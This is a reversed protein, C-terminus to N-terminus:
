RPKLEPMERSVFQQFQWAHLLAERISFRAKWGLLGAARSPDSYVAPVDGPRRPAYKWPVRVGTAEQFLTVLEYVSQGQGTGINLVNLGTISGELQARLAAVHAEALDMVHIYDRICTGDPTPYDNGFIQLETRWGAATQTIYPVLNDPVGPPLEGLRGSPHAGIPNFYRLVSAHLNAGSKVVDTILQESALKTFGYPSDPKVVPHDETVPVTNPTGYVTCSSSFVLHHVNSSKMYRLLQWLSALNNEYYDLPQRVSQAVSKYAAFHIVADPKGAIAEARKYTDPHTCDGEVFPVDRGSLESVRGPVFTAANVLNDILVVDYGAETLAIATHSGLFGAGGTVWVKAM